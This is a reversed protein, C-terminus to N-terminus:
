AVFANAGVNLLFPAHRVIGKQSTCDAHASLENASSFGSPKIEYSTVPHHASLTQMRM